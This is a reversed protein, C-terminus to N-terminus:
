SIGKAWRLAFSVIYYVAIYAVWASLFTLAESIPLFYNIYGLLESGLTDRISNIPGLLPDKPLWGLLANVATVLGDIITNVIDAM